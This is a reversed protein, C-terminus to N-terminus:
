ITVEGKRIVAKVADYFINLTEDIVEDTHDYCLFWPERNDPEPMAGRQIMELMISEYMKMNTDLADRYNTPAHNSGLVFGFMQPPGMFAHPINAETLIKALGDMLRRGRKAITELVPQTELLELTADAAATGPINGCYTGGVAVRGPQIVSMIEDTGAIAALPFGNALSKAYTALDAKIHFYQQAGGNAIRFGTKVEDVILVIGYESCLERMLELFGPEPMVSANNGMLPEVMIAAIEGWRGKVTRRLMELDNYPLTFVYEGIGYPIGSSSPIRIPSRRSGMSRAQGITTSFLAYDYMGHYTGEFKIFKERNTHARAIRLAHMTAETGSNAFRIKDLGTLRKMREAVSIELPHTAAYVTGDKIASTVRDVVAPYGHGLIV